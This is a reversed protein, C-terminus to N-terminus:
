REGGHTAAQEWLPTIRMPHLKRCHRADRHTAVARPEDFCTCYLPGCDGAEARLRARLYLALRATVLHLGTDAWADFAACGIRHSEDGGERLTGIATGLEGARLQCLALRMAARDRRTVVPERPRPHTRRHHQAGPVTTM